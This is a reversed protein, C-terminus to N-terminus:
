DSVVMILMIGIALLAYLRMKRIITKQAKAIALVAEGRKPNDASLQMAEQALKATAGLQRWGSQFGLAAVILFAGAHYWHLVFDIIDNLM